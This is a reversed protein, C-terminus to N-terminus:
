SRTSQPPLRNWLPAVAVGAIVLGAALVLFIANWPTQGDATTSSVLGPLTGGVVGGLSGCGNIM